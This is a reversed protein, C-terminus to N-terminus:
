GEAEAEFGKMERNKDNETQPNSKSQKERLKIARAKYERGRARKKEGKCKLSSFLQLSSIDTSGVENCAINACLYKIVYVHPVLLSNAQKHRCLKVCLCQTLVKFTTNGGVSVFFVFIVNACHLYNIFQKYCM